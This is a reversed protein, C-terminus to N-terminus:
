CKRKKDQEEASLKSQAVQSDQAGATVVLFMFSPCLAFLINVVSM